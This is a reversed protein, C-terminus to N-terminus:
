KLEKAERDAYANLATALDPRSQQLASAADRLLKVDAATHEKHAFAAQPLSIASGVLCVCGILLGRVGNMNGGEQNTTIKRQGTNAHKGLPQLQVEPWTTFFGVVRRKRSVCYDARSSKPLDYM